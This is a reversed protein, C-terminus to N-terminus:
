NPWKSSWNYVQLELKFINEHTYNENFDWSWKEPHFLHTMTIIIMVVIICFRKENNCLFYVICATTPSLNINFIACIFILSFSLLLDYVCM